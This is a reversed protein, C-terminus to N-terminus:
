YLGRLSIKRNTWPKSRYNTWHKWTAGLFYVHKPSWFYHISVYIKLIKKSKFFVFNKIKSGWPDILSPQWIAHNWVKSVWCLRINLGINVSFLLQPTRLYLDLLQLKWIQIHNRFQQQLWCQYSLPMMSFIILIQVEKM